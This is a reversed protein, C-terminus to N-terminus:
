EGWGLIVCKLYPHSVPVSCVHNTSVHTGTHSVMMLSEYNVKELDLEVEGDADYTVVGDNFKGLAVAACM